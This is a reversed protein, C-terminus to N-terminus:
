RPLGALQQPLVKLHTGLIRQAAAADGADLAEILALHEAQIVTRRAQDLTLASMAVRTLKANLGDFIQTLMPNGCNAVLAHHFRGNLEVHSLLDDASLAEMEEYLRWMVAPTKQEKSCILTAAHGEILKRVEYLDCLEQSTVQRVMAGRRPLQEIFGEAALLNLAERVPTRSVNALTCAHSEEIFAGAPFEGVLIGQRIRAYARDKASGVSTSSVDLTMSRDM